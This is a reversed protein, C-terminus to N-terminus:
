VLLSRQCTMCSSRRLSFPVAARGGTLSSSDESGYACGRAPVV